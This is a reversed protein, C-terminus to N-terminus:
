RSPEDRGAGNWRRVECGPAFLLPASARVRGDGGADPLGILYRDDETTACGSRRVGDSSAPVALITGIRYTAAHVLGVHDGRSYGVLRARWPMERNRPPIIGRLRGNAGIVVTPAVERMGDLSIVDLVYYLLVGSEGSRETVLDYAITAASESMTVLRHRKVWVRAGDLLPPEVVVETIEVVQM